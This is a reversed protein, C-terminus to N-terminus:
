MLRSHSKLNMVLIKHPLAQSGPNKGALSHSSQAGQPGRSRAPSLHPSWGSDQESDPETLRGPPCSLDTLPCDVASATNQLPTPPLEMVVRRSVQKTKKPGQLLGQGEWAVQRGQSQRKERGMGTTQSCHASAILAREERSVTALPTWQLPTRQQPEEPGPVVPDRNAM